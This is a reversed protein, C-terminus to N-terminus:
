ALEGAFAKQLLSQRLAVLAALKSKAHEILTDVHANLLAMSDIFVRQEELSPVPVVLSSLVRQNLNSINAGGGGARLHAIAEGSKMYYCLFRPDLKGATLRVRIVFGSYSVVEDVDGMVMVRGVLDKNGNSRVVLVDGACLKDSDPLRGDITAFALEDLPVWFNSQFNGVGAVKVTEGRSHRSFNLGNRFEALEGLRQKPASSAHHRLLRDVSRRRLNSADALNAEAHARARDLAAFAQDLVAVIRKQEALPPLPVVLDKYANFDLNRIGTSHSQIAETRGSVYWWYLVRHLFVSDIENPRVVRIASTFNSFSYKEDVDLDFLVVRGVPQKPGGGSKEIIIDNRQLTRKALQRAEVELVAVDSLDIRGDPTFNTNRIVTATEFPGKKGKWLGNHFECLDRLPASAWIHKVKLPNVAEAAASM